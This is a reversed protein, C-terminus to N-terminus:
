YFLTDIHRTISLTNSEETILGPTLNWRPLICLRCLSSKFTLIQLLCYKEFQKLMDLLKM